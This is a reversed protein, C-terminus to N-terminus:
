LTRKVIEDTMLTKTCTIFKVQLKKLEKGIM